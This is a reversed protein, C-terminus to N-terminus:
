IYNIAGSFPAAFRVYFDNITTHDVDAVCESGASDTIAVRPRYGRNHMVHVQAQNTFNVIAPLIGGGSQPPSWEAGTLTKTVVDGDNGGPPLGVFSSVPVSISGSKVAVEIRIM